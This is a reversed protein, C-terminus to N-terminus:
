SANLGCRTAFVLFKENYSSVFDKDLMAKPSDLYAISLLNLEKSRTSKLHMDTKLLGLSLM